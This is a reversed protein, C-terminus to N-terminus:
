LIERRARACCSLHWVGCRVHRVSLQKANEEFVHNAPGAESANQVARLTGVLDAENKENVALSTLANLRETM